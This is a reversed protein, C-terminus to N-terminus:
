FGAAGESSTVSALDDANPLEVMLHALLAVDPASPCKSEDHGWRM